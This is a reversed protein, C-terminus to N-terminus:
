RPPTAAASSAGRRGGGTTGRPRGGKRGNERAARAKAPSTARGAIAALERTREAPTLAALLLGPISYDLDFEVWRLAIGSPDLTVRRRAPRPLAAVAPLLAAPFAFTCGNTLELVIRDTGRELRVATARLGARRAGRERRRAAALQALIAATPTHHDAM